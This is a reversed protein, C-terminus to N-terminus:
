GCRNGGQYKRPNIRILINQLPRPRYGLDIIEAGQPLNNLPVYGDEEDQLHWKSLPESM